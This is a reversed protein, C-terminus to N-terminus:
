QPATQPAAGSQRSKLVAIAKEKDAPSLSPDNQISQIRNDTLKPDSASAAPAPDPAKSCGSAAIILIMGVTGWASAQKPHLKM